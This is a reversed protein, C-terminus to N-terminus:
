YSPVDSMAGFLLSSLASFRQGTAFVSLSLLPSESSSITGSAASRTASATSRIVLALSSSSGSRTQHCQRGLGLRPMEIMGVLEPLSTDSVSLRGHPLHNNVSVLSPRGFSRVFGIQCRHLFDGHRRIGFADQLIKAVQRLELDKILDLSASMERSIPPSYIATLDVWGWTDHLQYGLRTHRPNCWSPHPRRGTLNGSASGAHWPWSTAGSSLCNISIVHGM